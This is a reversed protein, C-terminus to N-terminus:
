LFQYCKNGEIREQLNKRLFFGSLLDNCMEVSMHVRVCDPLDNEEFKLLSDFKPSYSSRIESNSFLDM